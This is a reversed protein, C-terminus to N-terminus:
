GAGSYGAAREALEDVDVDDAMEVTKMNIRILEKRGELDPLAIYVRKELRRRLAEDLDWPTNTAALVIVTRRKSVGANEGGGGGDSGTAKKEGGEEEDEDGGVGDMQVM